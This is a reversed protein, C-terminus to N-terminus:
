GFGFHPPSDDVLEDPHHWEEPVIWIKGQPSCFCGDGLDRYANGEADEVVPGTDTLRVSVIQEENM